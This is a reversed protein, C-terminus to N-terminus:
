GSSGTSPQRTISGSDLAAAFERRREKEAPSPNLFARLKMMERYRAETEPSPATMGRVAAGMVEQVFGRAVGNAIHKRQSVVAMAAEAVKVLTSVGFQSGAAVWLTQRALKEGQQWQAV